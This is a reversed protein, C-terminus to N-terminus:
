QKEGGYAEKMRNIFDERKKRAEVDEGVEPYNSPKNDATIHYGEKENPKLQIQNLNEFSGRVTQKKHQIGEDQIAKEEDAKENLKKTQAHIGKTMSVGASEMIPTLSVEEQAVYPEKHRDDRVERKDRPVYPRLNQRVPTKMDPLVDNLVILTDADFPPSQFPHKRMKVPLSRDDEPHVLDERQVPNDGHTPYPIYLVDYDRSIQSYAPGLSDNEDPYRKLWADFGQTPYTKHLYKLYERM